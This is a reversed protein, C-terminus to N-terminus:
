SSSSLWCGRLKWEWLAKGLGKKRLFFSLPLSKYNKKGRVSSRCFQETCSIQDQTLSAGPPFSSLMGGATIIVIQRRWYKNGSTTFFKLCCVLRLNQWLPCLLFAGQVKLQAASSLQQHHSVWGGGLNMRSKRGQEVARGLTCVHLM